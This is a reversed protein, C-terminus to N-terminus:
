PPMSATKTKVLQVLKGVFPPTLEVNFGLSVLVGKAAKSALPGSLLAEAIGRAALDNLESQRGLITRVNFLRQKLSSIGAAPQSDALAQSTVEM